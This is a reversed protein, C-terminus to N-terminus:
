RKPLENYALSQYRIFNHQNTLHEVEAQRAMLGYILQIQKICNKKTSITSPLNM